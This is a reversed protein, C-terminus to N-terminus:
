EAIVRTVQFSGNQFLLLHYSSSHAAGRLKVCRIRRQINADDINEMKVHIIGDAIFEEGNNGYFTEGPRMESILFITAKLDRLWEFLHFLEERASQFRAMIELVPLSDIALIKYDLANKMNQAYMKFIDLWTRNAMGELNRRIVSLDVISVMDDVDKPDMNMGRLHRALSERGQELSIFISPKNEKMANMYMMYFVTSSKFTGPEGCVLVISGEPIGGGLKEDFGQIYTKVKGDTGM